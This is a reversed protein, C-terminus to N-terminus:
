PHTPLIGDFLPDCRHPWTHAPSFVGEDGGAKACESHAVVWGWQLVLMGATISTITCADEGRPQSRLLVNSWSRSSPQVALLHLPPPLSAGEGPDQLGPQGKLGWHVKEVRLCWGQLREVAMRLEAPLNVM